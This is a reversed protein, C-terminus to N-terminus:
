KRRRRLMALGGLALLSMTMPEPVPGVVTGDAIAGNIVNGTIMTPGLDSLIYLVESVEGVEIPDFFGVFGFSITPGSLTNVSAGLPSVTGAGFTGPTNATLYGVTTSQGAGIFDTLSLVEIIHWSQALGTNEVQYLYAYGGTVSDQFVQHTVDAALNLGVMSTTAVPWGTVSQWTGLSNFDAPNVTLPFVAAHASATFALIGVLTFIRMRM